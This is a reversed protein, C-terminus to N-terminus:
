TGRLQEGALTARMRQYSDHRMETITGAEIAAKVACGPESVHRCNSFKCDDAVAAFEVFHDRLANPDVNWLAFTRIGPSDIMEGGTPVKFLAASTTTHIGRGSSESLSQVREVLGPCLTNLLSTKGVGSHGVMVNLHGDLAAELADMGEGSHASVELVPYGIGRYVDLLPRIEARFAESLLDIKNFIVGAGIGQAHAAVLLRDILGPRLPPQIAVVVWLQDVNAAIVKANRGFSDARALETRRPAYGTVLHKAMETDADEVVYVADGAVARKGRGRAVCEFLDGDPGEVTLVPGQRIIVRGAPVKRPKPARQSRRLRPMGRVTDGATSLILM